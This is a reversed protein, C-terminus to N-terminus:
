GRPRRPRPRRPLGEDAHGARVLDGLFDKMRTAPASRGRASRLKAIVEDRETVLVTVEAKTMRLYEELV